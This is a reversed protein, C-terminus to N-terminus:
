DNKEGLYFDRCVQEFKNIAEWMLSDLDDVEYDDNERDYYKHIEASPLNILRKDQLTEGDMFAYGEVWCEDRSITAMTILRNQFYPCDRSAAIVWETPAEQRTELAMLIRQSSPDYEYDELQIWGGGDRVKLSPVLQEMLNDSGISATDYDFSFDQSELPMIGYVTIFSRTPKM